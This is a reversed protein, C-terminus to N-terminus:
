SIEWHRLSKLSARGASSTILHRQAKDPIERGVRPPSSSVHASALYLHDNADFQIPKAPRLPVSRQRIPLGGPMTM